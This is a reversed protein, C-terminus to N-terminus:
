LLRTSPCYTSVDHLPNNISGLNENIFKMFTQYLVETMLPARDVARVGGRLPLSDGIKLGSLHKVKLELWQTAPLGTQTAMDFILLNRANGALHGRILELDKTDRIPQVAKKTM